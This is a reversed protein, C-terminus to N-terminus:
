IEDVDVFCDREQTNAFRYKMFFVQESLIETHSDYSYPFYFYTRASEMEPTVGGNVVAIKERNDDTIMIAMGVSKIM